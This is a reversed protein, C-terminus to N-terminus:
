IHILSLYRGIGKFRPFGAKIKKGAKKEKVRRFFNAFARELRKLVDQVVQSHVTTLPEAQKKLGPLQNALAGYTLSLREYKWAQIRHSLSNNYLHRCVEITDLMRDGEASSEYMKYEFAVLM